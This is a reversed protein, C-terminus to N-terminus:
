KGTIGQLESIEERSGVTDRGLLEVSEPNGSGM